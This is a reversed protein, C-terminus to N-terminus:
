LGVMARAQVPTAVARGASEALAVAREVLWVNDAPEDSGDGRDPNDELGTRVHGGIFVALANVTQQFSGLGAGAWVASPPLADVLAILSRADAPATNPAGLLLNAYPRSELLGRESLRRAMAAMGLDFVELEPIIAADRIAAALTEIQDISTISPAERFNFSGMALSAMDPKADGTLALVDVRQEITLGDRGTTTVCLIAGPCRERLGLIVPEYAERRWEPRGDADRVHIHLIRAGADFALSGDEVIEETTIPLRPARERGIAGGTLAANILLPAYPTLPHPPFPV